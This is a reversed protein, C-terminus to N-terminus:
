TGRRSSTHPLPLLGLAGHVRLKSLLRVHTNPERGPWKVGGVWKFAPDDGCGTLVLHYFSFDM